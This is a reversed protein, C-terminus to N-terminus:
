PGEVVGGVGCGTANLAPKTQLILISKTILYGSPIWSFFDQDMFFIKKYNLKSYCSSEKEM